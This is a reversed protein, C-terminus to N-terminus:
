ANEGADIANLPNQSNTETGIKASHMEYNEQNEPKTTYLGHCVNM